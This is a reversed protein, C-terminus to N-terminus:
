VENNKDIVDLQHDSSRLDLCLDPSIQAEDEIPEIVQDTDLSVRSDSVTDTVHLSSAASAQRDTTDTDDKSNFNHGDSSTILSDYDTIRSLTNSSELNDSENTLIENQPDDATLGEINSHRSADSGKCQKQDKDLHVLDETVIGEINNEHGEASKGTSEQYLFGGSLLTPTEHGLGTSTMLNNDTCDVPATNSSCHKIRLDVFCNEAEHNQRQKQDKYEKNVNDRPNEKAVSDAQNDINARQHINSSGRVPGKVQTDGKVQPDIHNMFLPQSLLGSDCNNSLEEKSSTGRKCSNSRQNNAEQRQSEKDSARESNTSSREKDEEVRQSVPVPKDGGKKLQIALVTADNDNSPPLGDVIDIPKSDKKKSDPDIETCNKRTSEQVMKLQSMQKKLERYRKEIDIKHEAKLRDVKDKHELERQKFEALMKDKKRSLALENELNQEQSRKEVNIKVRSRKESSIKNEAKLRDVKDKDELERQKDEALIKDKNRILELEKELNQEELEYQEKHADIQEQHSVRLNFKTLKNNGDVNFEHCPKVEFNVLKSGTRSRQDQNLGNEIVENSASAHCQPREELPSVSQSISNLSRQKNTPRSNNAPPINNTPMIDNLEEPTSRIILSSHERHIETPPLNCNSGSPKQSALIQQANDTTDLGSLPIDAPVTSHNHEYGKHVVVVDLIPSTSAHDVTQSQINSGMENVTAHTVIIRRSNRTDSDQDTARYVKDVDVNHSSNSNLFPYDEQKNDEPKPQLEYPKTTLRRKNRQRRYYLMGYVGGVILLLVAIFILAGWLGWLHANSSEVSKLLMITTLISLTNGNRQTTLFHEDPPAVDLVVPPLVHLDATASAGDVNCLYTGSDGEVTELISFTCCPRIEACVFKYRGCEDPYSTDCLLKSAQSSDALFYIFRLRYESNNANSCCTFIAPDGLTVNSNVPRLTAQSSVISARGYLFLLGVLREVVVHRHWM